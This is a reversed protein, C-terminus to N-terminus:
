RCVQQCYDRENGQRQCAQECRSSSDDGLRQLTQNMRQNSDRMSQSNAQQVCMSSCSNYGGCQQACSTVVDAFASGSVLCLGIVLFLLGRM